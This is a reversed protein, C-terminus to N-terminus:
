NRNNSLIDLAALVKAVALRSARKEIQPTSEGLAEDIDELLDGDVAAEKVHEEDVRDAVAAEIFLESLSAKLM